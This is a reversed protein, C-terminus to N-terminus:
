KVPQACKTKDGAKCAKVAAEWDARAKANAAEQAAVRAQYDAMEKAYAAKSAAIQAKRADQAAKYDAEAKRNRAEIAANRANIDANLRRTGDDQAALEEPSMSRRAWTENPDAPAAPPPPTTAAVKPGGDGDYRDPGFAPPTQATQKAKPRAAERRGGILDSGNVATLRAPGGDAPQTLQLTCDSVVWKVAGRGPTPSRCTGAFALRKDGNNLTDTRLYALGQVLVDGEAYGAKRDADSLRSVKGSSGKITVASGGGPWEGQLVGLRDVPTAAVSAGAAMALALTLLAPRHMTTKMRTAALHISEM